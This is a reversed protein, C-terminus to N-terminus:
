NTLLLMFFIKKIISIMKIFISLYRIIKLTVANHGFKSLVINNTIKELRNFSILIITSWNVLINAAHLYFHKIELLIWGKRERNQM